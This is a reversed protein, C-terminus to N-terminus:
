YGLKQGVRVGEGGLAICVRRVADHRDRDNGGMGTAASVGNRMANVCLKTWREGWLNDTAKASDVDNM